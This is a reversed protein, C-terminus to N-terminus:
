GNNNEKNNVKKSFDILTEITETVKQEDYAIHRRKCESILLAKAFALKYEGELTEGNSMTYQEVYQMVEIVKQKLENFNKSRIARIIDIVLWVIMCMVTLIIDLNNLIFAKM